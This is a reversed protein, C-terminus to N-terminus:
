SRKCSAPSRWGAMPGRFTRVAATCLLGSHPLLLVPLLCRNECREAFADSFLPQKTTDQNLGNNIRTLRTMRVKDKRM